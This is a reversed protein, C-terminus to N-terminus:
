GTDTQQCSRTPSPSTTDPCRGTVVLRRVPAGGRCPRHEGAPGHAWDGARAGGVLAALGLLRHEVARDRGVQRGEEGPCSSFVPRTPPRRKDPALELRIELTADEVVTEQAPYQLLAHTLADPTCAVYPIQQLFYLAKVVRTDLPTAGPLQGAVKNIERVDAQNLDLVVQNFVLDLSVVRGVEADLLHRVIVSQCMGLMSRAETNLTFGTTAGTRAAKFIDQIVTFQYPLFPYHTVFTEATLAPLERSAGPLQGVASLTGGVRDYFQALAASSEENKKLIRDELVREVDESTLSLRTDFRTIIRGFEDQVSGIDAVLAKLEQQSTVLLWLKGRGRVAFEEAITQLELLRDKERGVFQGIEDVIFVLHPPREGDGAAHVPAGGSGAIDIGQRTPEGVVYRSILQGDAPWRWAIGSAIPVSAVVPVAAPARPVATRPHSKRAPAADRRTAATSPSRGAASQPYLRLRQGPYITYPLPIDNWAALDQVTIGNSIAIRYLNDGRQVLTSAGPKPTSSAVRRVGASKDGDRVVKSSCAALVLVVGISLAIRATATHVTTRHANTTAPPITTKTMRKTADVDIRGAASEPASL